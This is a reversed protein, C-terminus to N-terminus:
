HGRIMEQWTDIMDFDMQIDRGHTTLYNGIMVGNAGALFIWSQYDKLTPERGGCITIDTHPHIYRYLAICKLAEMPNLLQRKELKTGPIPNLFNLPIRNINLKKLAFALEIRQEWSEGLGFICGACANLGADSAITLTEIDEEYSHTTCIQPFYSEASELNHHYNTIGSNKLNKAQTKSLAGVSCCVTLGTKNKIERTTECITEIERNTLRHGSTVMSFNTAGYKEMECANELMEKKSLLPYTVIQTQHHASQACFACDQSCLGSKANIITCKFIDSNVYASTIKHAGFIMDLLDTGTFSALKKADKESVSANKDELIKDTLRVISKNYM